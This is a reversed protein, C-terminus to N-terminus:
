PVGTLLAAGPDTGPPEEEPLATHSGFMCYVAVHSNFVNIIGSQKHVRLAHRSSRSLATSARVNASQVCM